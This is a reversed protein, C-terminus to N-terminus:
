RKGRKSLAEAKAKREAHKRIEAMTNMYNVFEFLERWDYPMRGYEKSFSHHCFLMDNTGFFQEIL